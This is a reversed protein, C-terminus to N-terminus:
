VGNPQHAEEAPHDRDADGQEVQGQKRDEPSALPAPENTLGPADQKSRSEAMAKNLKDRWSQARSVPVPLSEPRPTLQVSPAQQPPAPEEDNTQPRVKIEPTPAIEPEDAAASQVLDEPAPMVSVVDQQVPEEEPLEAEENELPEVESGSLRYSTAQAELPRGEDSSSVSGGTYSDYAEDNVLPPQFTEEAPEEDPELAPATVPQDEAAIEGPTGVEAHPEVEPADSESSTEGEVLKRWPGHIGDETVGYYVFLKDGLRQVLDQRSKGGRKYSKWVGIDGVWEVKTVDCPNKEAEEIAYQWLRRASALTVNHVIRM